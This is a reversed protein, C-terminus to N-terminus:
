NRSANDILRNRGPEICIDPEIHASAARGFKKLFFFDTVARNIFIFHLFSDLSTPIHFRM